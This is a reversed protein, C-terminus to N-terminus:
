SDKNKKHSNRYNWWYVIRQFSNLDERYVGDPAQIKGIIESIPNYIFGWLYEWLTLVSCTHHPYENSAECYQDAIWMVESVYERKGWVVFVTKHDPGYYLEGRIM